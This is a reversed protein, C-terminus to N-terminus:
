VRQKRGEDTVEVDVVVNSNLRSLRTGRTARARVEGFRVGGGRRLRSRSDGCVRETEESAFRECEVGRTRCWRQKRGARERENETTAVDFARPSARAEGGPSDGVVYAFVVVFDFEADDRPRARHFRRRAARADIADLSLRAPLREPMVSRGVSVSVSRGVSWLAIMAYMRPTKCAENSRDLSFRDFRHSRDSM